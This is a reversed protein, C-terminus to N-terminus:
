RRSFPGSIPCGYFEEAMRIVEENGCKEYKAPGMEELRYGESKLMPGAPADYLGMKVAVWNRFTGFLTHPEPMYWPMAQFWKPHMRHLKSSPASVTTATAKSLSIDFVAGPDSDSRPLCLYGQIFGITHLTMRFIKHLYAPQQPQMMAIRVSEELACITLRRCFNKLGFFEPVAHLLEETTYTAVDHNTQAPIMTRSEYEVVWHKFEKITEPIDRIGMRQGIEVWFIYFAEEEMPSLARWGYLRAWKPPEFAFLALTYLYDDNTISYKSHLWNVRALAIMGRPDDVQLDGLETTGGIHAKEPKITASSQRSRTSPQKVTTSKGTIPCFVWTSILIETDAYRKSISAASKLEKTDSLIKSITPIAYTKFLAFALAYNMLAPMDYLASTHIIKQADEPTLLGSEYKRGFERHIATHRRWRLVRVRCLYATVVILAGTALQLASLQKSARLSLSQIWGNM